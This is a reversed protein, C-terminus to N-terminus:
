KAYGGEFYTDYKTVLIQIKPTPLSKEAAKTAFSGLSIFACGLKGVWKEM